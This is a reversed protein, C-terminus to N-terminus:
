DTVQCRDTVRGLRPASDEESATRQATEEFLHLILILLMVVNVINRKGVLIGFKVPLCCSNATSQATLVIGLTM